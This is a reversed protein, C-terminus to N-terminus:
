PKRLVLPGHTGISTQPQSGLFHESPAYTRTTIPTHPAPKYTKTVKEFDFTVDFTAGRLASVSTVSTIYGNRMTFTLYTFPAGNPLNGVVDLIVRKIVRGNAAAAYFEVMNVSRDFTLIYLYPDVPHRPSTQGPPKRQERFDLVPIWLNQSDVARRQGRFGDISVFYSKTMKKLAGVAIHCPRPGIVLPEADGHEKV